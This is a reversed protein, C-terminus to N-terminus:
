PAVVFTGTVNHLPGEACMREDAAQIKVETREEASLGLREVGECVADQAALLQSLNVDGLASAGLRVHRLSLAKGEEEKRSHRSGQKGEHM